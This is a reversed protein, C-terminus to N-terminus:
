TKVRKNREKREINKRHKREFDTEIKGITKPHEIQLHKKLYKLYKKSGKIEIEAM